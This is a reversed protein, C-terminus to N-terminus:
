PTWGEPITIRGTEIRRTTQGQERLRAARAATSRILSRPGEVPFPAVGSHHAMYDEFDKRLLELPACIGFEGCADMLARASEVWEAKRGKNQPPRLNWL